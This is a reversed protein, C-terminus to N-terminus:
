PWKGPHLGGKRLFVTHPRLGPVITSSDLVNQVKFVDILMAMEVFNLDDIAAMVELVQKTGDCRFCVSLLRM